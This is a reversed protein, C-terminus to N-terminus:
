APDLLPIIEEIDALQQEWYRKTGFFEFKRPFAPDAWRRSIWAAFHIYRLARLPEILRLERPDFERMTRYADLLRERAALADPDRGPAVLWLDQIAPGNVMDDFDVWFPGTDSWLLNGLHADGHLRLTPTAEFWPFSRDCIEEVADAYRSSIEAPIAETDLLYDLNDWGYTEPDLTLRAPAPRAAGVNHLRALLRGIADLQFANLEDPSRGGIKPFVAFHIGTTEMTGLTSDSLLPLPAVTPIEASCLDALFQHEDQIQAPTWRGPRYFKAVRFNEPATPHAPPTGPPPEVEVEYVRNEMSNLQLCRGTSRLGTAEVADLILDPTLGYFFRTQKDGWASPPTLM